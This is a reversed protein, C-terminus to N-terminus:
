DGTSRWVQIRKALREALTEGQLFRFRVCVAEESFMPELVKVKLNQAFLAERKKALSRIHFEGEPCLPTKEVYRVGDEEIISTRIQYQPKRTRNYKVFLTQKM